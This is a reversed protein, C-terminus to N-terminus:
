VRLITPLTLHTYSVAHAHPKTNEKGRAAVYRDIAETLAKLSLWGEDSSSEVSLIYKLCEESLSSKIRDCVLLERLKDFTEVKRSETYYTLLGAFRSAFAVYTQDPRKQCTNFRELYTNASLKYEQLITTKVQQCDKAVEATLEGVIRQARENLFPNILRAQLNVPVSYTAFLQEVNNFFAVADIPDAGMKIISNRMVDGLLKATAADAQQAKDDAVKKKLAM